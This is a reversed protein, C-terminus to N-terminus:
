PILLRFFRQKAMPQELFQNETTPVVIWVPQALNTCSYLSGGGFELPWSILAANGEIGVQLAFDTPEPQGVTALSLARPGYTPVLRRNLGM